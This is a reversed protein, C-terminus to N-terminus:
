STLDKRKASARYITQWPVISCLKPIEEIWNTSTVEGSRDNNAQTCKFKYVANFCQM